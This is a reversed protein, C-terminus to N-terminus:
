SAKRATIFVWSEYMLGRDVATVKLGFSELAKTVKALPFHHGMPEAQDGEIFQFRFVGGPFLARAIARFYCWVGHWPIHQFTIMSYVADLGQAEEPLSRGDCLLGRVNTLGFTAAHEELGALMEPSIDIGLVTAEPMAIATPVALRGIGCGIDAIHLEADHRAAIPALIDLVPRVCAEFCEPIREEWRGPEGWIALRGGDAARTADSWFQREIEPTM